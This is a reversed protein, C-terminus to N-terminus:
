RHVNAIDTPFQALAVFRNFYYINLAFSVAQFCSFLGSTNDPRNKKNLATQFCIRLSKITKLPSKLAQFVFGGYHVILITYIAHQRPKNPITANLPCFPCLFDAM